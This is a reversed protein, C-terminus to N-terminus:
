LPIPIRWWDGKWYPRGALPCKGRRGPNVCNEGTQQPSTEEGKMVLIRGLSLRDREERGRSIKNENSQLM